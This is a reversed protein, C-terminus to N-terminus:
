DFSFIQIEGQRTVRGELFCELKDDTFYIRLNAGKDKHKGDWYNVSYKLDLKYAEAIYETAKEMYTDIDDMTQFNFYGCVDFAKPYRNAYYHQNMLELKLTFCNQEVIANAGFKSLINNVDTM